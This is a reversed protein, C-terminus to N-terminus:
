LMAFAHEPESASSSCSCWRSSHQQQQQEGGHLAALRELVALIGSKSTFALHSYTGLQQLSDDLQLVVLFWVANAGHVASFKGVQKPSRGCLTSGICLKTVLQGFWLVYFTNYCEQELNHV